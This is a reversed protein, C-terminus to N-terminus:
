APGPHLLLTVRKTPISIDKKLNRSKEIKKETDLDEKVEMKCSTSAWFARVPQDWSSSSISASCCFVSDRCWFLSRSVLFSVQAVEIGCFLCRSVLFFVCGNEATVEGAFPTPERVPKYVGKKQSNPGKQPPFFASLDM